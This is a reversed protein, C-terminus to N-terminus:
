FFDKSVRKLAPCYRRRHGGAKETDEASAGQELRLYGHPNNGVGKNPSVEGTRDTGNPIDDIIIVIQSCSNTSSSAHFPQHASRSAESLGAADDRNKRKAPQQLKKHQPIPTPPARWPTPCCM